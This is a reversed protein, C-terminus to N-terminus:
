IISGTNLEKKLYDFVYGASQYYLGTASNNLRDYTESNYLLNLAETMSYHYEEMLIQILEICLDEQMFEIQRENLKM